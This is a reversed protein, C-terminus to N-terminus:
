QKGPVNLSAPMSAGASAATQGLTHGPVAHLKEVFVQLTVPRPLPAIVHGCPQFHMMSQVVPPAHPSMWQVCDVDHSMVHLAGFAHPLMEHWTPVHVTCHSPAPPVFAHPLM